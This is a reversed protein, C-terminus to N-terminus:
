GAGVQEYFEKDDKEEVIIKIQCIDKEERGGKGKAHYRIGKFRMTKGVIVGHIFLRVPDLGKQIAHRVINYLTPIMLKSVKKQSQGLKAIADYLYLKRILKM